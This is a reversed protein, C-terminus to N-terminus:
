RPTRSPKVTTERPSVGGRASPSLSTGGSLVIDSQHSGVRGPAPSPPVIPAPAPSTSGSQHGEARGAGRSSGSRGKVLANWYGLIQDMRGKRDKAPPGMAAVNPQLNTAAVTAGGWGSAPSLAALGADKPSGLTFAPSNTLLAPPILLTNNQPTTLGGVGGGGGGGGAGGYLKSAATRTLVVEGGFMSRVFDAARPDIELVVEMAKRPRGLVAVRGAGGAESTGEASAVVCVQNSGWVIHDIPFNVQAKGYGGHETYLAGSACEWALLKGSSAGVVALKGDPMLAAPVFSTRKGTHIRHVCTFTRIDVIVVCQESPCSIVATSGRIDATAAGPCELRRRVQLTEFSNDEHNIDARWHVFQHASDISWLKNNDTSKLFVISATAHPVTQVNYGGQQQRGNPSFDHFPGGGGGGGGYRGEQTRNLANNPSAAADEEHQQQHHEAPSYLQMLPAQPVTWVHLRTDYGGVVLVNGMFVAGYVSFGRSFTAICATM